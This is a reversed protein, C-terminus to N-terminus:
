CRHRAGRDAKTELGPDVPRIAGAGLLTAGALEATERIAEIEHDQYPKGNSRGALMLRGIPRDVPGIPVTVVADAPSWRGVTRSLVDSGDGRDLEIAGAAAGLETTAERLLRSSAEEPDILSRLAELEARYAGFGVQAYKFRRDVVAELRKRLPAYITAVLLTALVIAVDSTEGTAAVFVRQALGIGATFIGALIATLAGYVITRNVIRDIEFLRYRLIAVGASIPLLTMALFVLGLSDSGQGTAAGASITIAAFVLSAAAGVVAAWTFWLLQRREDVGARRYRIEISWGALAFAVAGAILGLGPGDGLVDALPGTVQYPNDVTPLMFLESPIFGIAGFRVVSTVAVLVVVWRWPRSVLRGDPFVLVCLAPLGLLAAQLLPGTLWGVFLVLQSPSVVLLVSAGFVGASIVGQAIGVVCFLWGIPNRPRRAAIIAGVTSFATGFLCAALLTPLGLGYAIPLAVSAGRWAFGIAM